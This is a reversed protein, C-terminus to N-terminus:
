SGVKLRAFTKGGVSVSTPITVTVTQTGSAPVGVTVTSIGVTTTGAAAPIILDAWGVLDSGYQIVQNVNNSDERRVYRFTFDSSSASTNPVITTDSIDPNGNLVFEMLNSIGDHDPDGGKSKDLANFGGAWALYPDAISASYELVLSTGTQVLAWTGIGPFNPASIGVLAPNFGSIGGAANLITFSRNAETFNTLGTTTVLMTVEGSSANLSAVVLDDYGTGAAGTWDTIRTGLGGGPSIVVAGGSTGNGGLTANAAINVTGTAASNDGDIRLTGGNVHTTGLYDSQGTLTLSANVSSQIVLGGNSVKNTFSASNGLTITRTGGKLDVVGNFTTAQNTLSPVSVAGLQFDGNINVSNAITRASVVSGVIGGNITLPGSGVATSSRLALKGQKLTTGGTYNSSGETIVAGAGTKDIIMALDRGPSVAKIGGAFVTNGSGSGGVTIVHTTNDTRGDFDRNFILNNASNNSISFDAIAGVIVRQENGSAALRGFTVPGAGSAVTIGGAGITTVVASTSSTAGRDIQITGANSGFTM